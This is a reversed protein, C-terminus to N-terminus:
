THGAHAPRQRATARMHWGHPAPLARLTPRLDFPALPTLEWRSAIAALALVAEDMAFRDGICIRAGAGFPIYAERNPSAGMWREPDFRDPEPYLDARHHILYPSYGIATGTTLRTDALGKDRTVSRTLLWAPPQLRLTETIVARTVELEALHALAVPGGTLVRDTEDHLRQSIKPHRSLLALAWALAAATSETGAALFTFVQDLLEHDTLAAEDPHADRDRAQLLASLLDRHETGETRRADIAARLTARVRALTARYRRNGPTPLRGVWTPLVTARFADGIFESFDAILQGETDASLTSSFMCRETIRITLANMSGTVDFVQGDRLSDAMENAAQAMLEGYAPFRAPHFAPQCLRRQRRHRDHQTAGLGDGAWERVRDFLPGGKDFARDNVLVQRVLAPDCVMVLPRSGLKLVVLDDYGALSAMLGLPDRLLALGHGLVPIAGPAVPLSGVTRM